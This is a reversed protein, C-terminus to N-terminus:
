KFSQHPVVKFLSIVERYEGTKYSSYHLEFTKLMELTLISKNLQEAYYPRDVIYTINKELIYNEIGTTKMAELSEPNMVGDLNIVDHHPTYYQYIGTNFSGVIESSSLNNTIFQAIEWKLKEQPNNGREYHILGSVVFSVFLGFLVISLIFKGVVDFKQAVRLIVIPFILVLLFSTYMSYWERIGLQYFWYFSYYGISSLVLFDLKTFLKILLSDRKLTLISVPMVLALSLVIIGQVPTDAIQFFFKTVFGVTSYVAHRVLGIYSKDPLNAGALLHTAEGSIPTVRGLELYSWILWPSVIMFATLVIIILDAQKISNFLNEISIKTSLLKRILLALVLGFGIFVGDMRSLFILGILLGIIMSERISFNKKEKKVLFYTLLSLFFIQTSSELGIFSVFLVYPNFLWIFSALLAANKNFLLKVVSFLVIATGITLLSIIFLSAYIPANIGLSLFIKFLPVLIALNYFPHFGNTVINENFVIGKGGVVNKAITYAYYTDDSLFKNLLVSIDQNILFFRLVLAGFIFLILLKEHKGIKKLFKM